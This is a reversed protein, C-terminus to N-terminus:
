TLLENVMLKFQDDFDRPLDCAKTLYSSLRFAFQRLRNNVSFRRKLDTDLTSEPIGFLRLACGLLPNCCLFVSEPSDLLTRVTEIFDEWAQLEFDASTSDVRAVMVERLKKRLLYAERGGWIYDRLFREFIDKTQKPDFVEFIDRVITSMVISFSFVAFIYIALHESKAPDLEGRAHRLNAIIGRVLKPADTELPVTHRLYGGLKEAPANQRFTAHLRHWRDMSLIYSDVDKYESSLASAYTDFLNEDFLYIGITRASIKHAETASRKLIVYAHNAEIYRMLGAAWFARNIPSTKTTKCDFITRGIRGRDMGIGLVDVDTLLEEKDTLDKVNTVNVEYYPILGSAICFKIAKSKQQLDKDTAAM